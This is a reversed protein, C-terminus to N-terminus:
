GVDYLWCQQFSVFISTAKQSTKAVKQTTVALNVVATTVATALARRSRSFESSAERALPELPDAFMADLEPDLPVPEFRQAQLAGPGYALGLLLLVVIGLAIAGRVIWTM